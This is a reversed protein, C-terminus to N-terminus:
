LESIDIPEAEAAEIERIAAIVKPLDEELEVPIEVVQLIKDVNESLTDVLERMYQDNLDSWAKLKEYDARLKDIQKQQYEFAEFLEKTTFPM